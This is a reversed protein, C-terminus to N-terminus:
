RRQVAQGRCPPSSHLCWSSCKKEERTGHMITRWWKDVQEKQHTPLLTAAARNATIGPRLVKVWSRTGWASGVGAHNMQQRRTQQVQSCPMQRRHSGLPPACHRICLSSGFCITKKARKAQDTNTWGLQQPCCSSIAFYHRSCFSSWVTTGLKM